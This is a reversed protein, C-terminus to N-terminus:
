GFVMPWAFLLDFSFDVPWILFQKWWIKKALPILGLGRCPHTHTFCMLSYLANRKLCSFGQANRQPLFFGQTNRGKLFFGPRKFFVWVGLQCTCTYFLVPTYYKTTRPLVKYYLTTSQLVRLLDTYYPDGSWRGIIGRLWKSGCLTVDCGAVDCWLSMLDWGMAGCWKVVSSLEDCSLVDCSM